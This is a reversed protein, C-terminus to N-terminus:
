AMQSKLTMLSYQNSPALHGLFRHGFLTTQSLRLAKFLHYCDRLRLKGQYQWRVLM